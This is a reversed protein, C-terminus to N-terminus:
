NSNMYSGHTLTTNKKLDFALTVIFFHPQNQNKKKLLFKRDLHIGEWQFHSDQTAM